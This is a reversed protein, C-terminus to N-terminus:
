HQREYGDEREVATSKPIWYSEAARDFKVDLFDKRLLRAVLALPTVLAYFLAILIVRTTVWGMLAGLRMWGRQFPELRAPVALAVLILASSAAFFYPYYPRGRWLFLGGLIGLAIGITIAFKRAESAESKM